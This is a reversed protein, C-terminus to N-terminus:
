KGLEMSIECSGQCPQEHGGFRAPQSVRTLDKAVLDAVTNEPVQRAEEAILAHEQFVTEDQTMATNACISMQAFDRTDM